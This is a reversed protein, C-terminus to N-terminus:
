IWCQRNISRQQPRPQPQRNPNRATRIGHGQQARQSLPAALQPQHKLHRMQMVPQPPSLRITIKFEATRKRSPEPHSEMLSPRISRGLSLRNPFGPLRRLRNLLRRPPQPVCEEPLQQCRTLYVSNRRRVRQVILGFRHQAFEQASRPRLPKGPYVRLHAKRLPPNNTRQQARRPGLHFSVKPRNPLIPPFIRRIPIRRIRSIADPVFQQWQKLLPIRPQLLMQRLHRNQRSILLRPPLRLQRLGRLQNHHSPRNPPAPARSALPEGDIHCSQRCQMGSQLAPHQPM